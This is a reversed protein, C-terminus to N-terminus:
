TYCGVNVAQNFIKKVMGMWTVNGIAMWNIEEAHKSATVSAAIHATMIIIATMMINKMVSNKGMLCLTFKDQLQPPTTSTNVLSTGDTHRQYTTGGITVVNETGQVFDGVLDWSLPQQQCGVAPNWAPDPEDNPVCHWALPIVGKGKVGQCGAVAEASARLENVGFVRAFLSDGFVTTKVSVEYGEISPSEALTAGNNEVYSQIVTSTDGPLHWCLHQAGAMAGADAAAQATRRQSLLAGGDLLLMVMAMIGFMILAILPIVQGKFLKHYEPKERM